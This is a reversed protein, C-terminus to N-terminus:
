LLHEMGRGVTPGTAQQLDTYHIADSMEQDRRPKGLSEQPRARVCGPAHREGTRPRARKRRLRRALAKEFMAEVPANKQEKQQQDQEIAEQQEQAMMDRNEKKM